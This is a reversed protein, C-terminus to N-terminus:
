SAGRGANQCAYDVTRFSWKSSFATQSSILSTPYMESVNGYLVIFEILEYMLCQVLLYIVRADRYEEESELIGFDSRFM